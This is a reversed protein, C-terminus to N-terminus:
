DLITSGFHEDHAAQILADKSFVNFVRIKQKHQQAMAFAAQDMIQLEMQLAQQYTLRPLHQADCHQRPDSTYVGGVNTAKWIVQANMQLSRLVANTDTTFFPNGTGGTFIPLINNDLANDLEQQAISVGVEPCPMACFILSNIGQQDFLNKIFIGNMMTALMGAQHAAAAHIGLIKGQSSGRFINGGGIVIGFQHTTRLTHLQPILKNFHTASLEKNDTNLFVEGTVKLLVRKKSTM